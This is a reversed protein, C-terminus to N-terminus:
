YIFGRIRSDDLRITHFSISECNVWGMDSILISDEYIAEVYGIHGFKTRLLVGGHLIPVSSNSIIDRANGSVQLGKSQVYEVCHCGSAGQITTTAIEGKEELNIDDKVKIGLVFSEVAEAGDWRIFNDSYTFIRNDSVM